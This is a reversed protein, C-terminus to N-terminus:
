LEMLQMAMNKLSTDNNASLPVNCQKIKKAVNELHARKIYEEFTKLKQKAFDDEIVPMFIRDCLELLQTYCSISEDFDVVVIDAVSEDSLMMFFQEWQLADIEQLDCPSEVPLILKINENKIVAKELIEKKSKGQACFYFVDSLNWKDVSDKNFIENASFPEFNLYLVNKTESIVKSLAISLNTKGCRRIPSYVGIYTIEDTTKRKIPIDKQMITMLKKAINKVSQYKYIEHDNDEENQTDQLGEIFSETLVIVVSTSNEFLTEDYFTEGVLIYDPKEEKLFMKFSEEESFSHVLIGSQLLQNLRQMLRYSYAVEEYIGLRKKM